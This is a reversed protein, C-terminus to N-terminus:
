RRTASLSRRAHRLNAALEKASPGKDRVSRGGRARRRRSRLPPEADFEDLADDDDLADDASSVDAHFADSGDDLGFGLAHLQVMEADGLRGTRRLHDILQEIVRMNVGM